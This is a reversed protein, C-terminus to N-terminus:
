SQTQRPLFIGVTEQSPDHRQYRISGDLCAISTCRSTFCQLLSDLTDDQINILTSPNLLRITRPLGQLVMCLQVLYSPDRVFLKLLAMFLITVQSQRFVVRSGRLSPLILIHGTYHSYRVFGEQIRVSFSGM